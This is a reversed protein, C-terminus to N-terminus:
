TVPKAPLALAERVQNSQMMVYITVVIIAVMFAIKKTNKETM